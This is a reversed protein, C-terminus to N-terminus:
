AAFGWPSPGRGRPDGGIREDREPFSGRSESGPQHEIIEAVASRRASLVGSGGQERSARRGGHMARYRRVQAADSRAWTPCAWGGGTSPPGASAPFSRQSSRRGRRHRGGGTALSLSPVVGFVGRRARRQKRAVGRGSWRKRRHGNFPFAPVHLGFRLRAFSTWEQEAGPQRRRRSHLEGGRSWSRAGRVTTSGEPPPSSVGAARMCRGLSESRRWGAFPPANGFAPTGKVAQFRRLPRDSAGVDCVPARWSAAGSGQLPLCQM